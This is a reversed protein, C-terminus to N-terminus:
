DHFATSMLMRETVCTATVAKVKNGLTIPSCIVKGNQHDTHNGLIEIRGPIFLEVENM